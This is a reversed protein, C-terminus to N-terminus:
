VHCRHMINFFLFPITTELTVICHMNILFFSFSSRVFRFSERESKRKYKKKKLRYINTLRDLRRECDIQFSFLCSFKQHIILM